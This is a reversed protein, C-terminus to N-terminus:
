SSFEILVAKAERDQAVLISPSPAKIQTLTYHNRKMPTLHRTSYRIVPWTPRKCLILHAISGLRRTRETGLYSVPVLCGGDLLFHQDTCVIYYGRNRAPLVVRSRSVREPFLTAALTITNFFTGASGSCCGMRPRSLHIQHTEPCNLGRIPRKSELLMCMM